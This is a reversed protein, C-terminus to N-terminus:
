RNTYAKTGSPSSSWTRGPRIHLYAIVGTLNLLIQSIFYSNFVNAGNTLGIIAFLQSFALHGVGLGGPSIPLVTMLMGIPFISAIAPLETFLGSGSGSTFLYLQYFFLFSLGHAVASLSVSKVLVGNDGAYVRLKEFANLLKGTLGVGGGESVNGAIAPKILRLIFVLVIFGAVYAPVLLMVLRLSTNEWLSDFNLFIFATGILFLGCMGVLRDFLISWIASTKSKEKNDAILYYAKVLDGGLSGPLVTTFFVGVLQLKVAKYTSIRFGASKLLIKWRIASLLIPGFLWFLIASLILTPSSMFLELSKIDVLGRNVLWYFLGGSLTLKLLLYPPKFQGKNKLQTDTPRSM